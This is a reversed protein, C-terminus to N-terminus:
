CWGPVHPPPHCQVDNNLLGARACKLSMTVRDYFARKNYVTAWVDWITSYIDCKTSKNDNSKKVTSYDDHLLQRHIM